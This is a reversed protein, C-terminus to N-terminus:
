MERIVQEAVLVCVACLELHTGKKNSAVVSFGNKGYFINMESVDNGCQAQVQKGYQIDRAVLVTIGHTLLKNILPQMLRELPEPVFTSRQLPKPRAATKLMSLVNAYVMPQIHHSCNADPEFTRVAATEESITNNDTRAEAILTPLVEPAVAVYASWNVVDCLPNFYVDVDSSMFCARTADCTRLDVFASIGLGQAWETTFSKYFSAYSRLDYCPTEMAFVVKLGDGSPSVFCMAVREDSQIRTRLAVLKSSEGAYKDIDIVFASVSEFHKSHRVGGTFTACCFFPLRLKMSGYVGADIGKIKRLHEVDRLLSVDTRMREAVVHFAMSQLAGQATVQAGVSLLPLSLATSSTSNTM